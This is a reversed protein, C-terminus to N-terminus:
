QLSPFGQCITDTPAAMAAGAVNVRVV